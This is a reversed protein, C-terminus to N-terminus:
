LVPQYAGLNIIDTHQAICISTDMVGYQLAIYKEQRWSAGVHKLPHVSQPTFHDCM